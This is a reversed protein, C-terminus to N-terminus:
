CAGKIPPANSWGLPSLGLMVDSWPREMPPTAGSPLGEQFLHLEGSCPANSWRDILPTESSGRGSVTVGLIQYLRNSSSFM